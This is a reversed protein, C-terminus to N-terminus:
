WWVNEVHMLDYLDLLGLAATPSFSVGPIKELYRTDSFLVAEFTCETCSFQGYYVCTHGGKILIYYEQYDGDPRPYQHVRTSKKAETNVASDVRIPILRAGKIYIYVM